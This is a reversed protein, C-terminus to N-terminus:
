EKTEEKKDALKVPAGDRVLSIGSLIIKDEKTVGSLVLWNDDKQGGVTIRTKHAVNNEDM